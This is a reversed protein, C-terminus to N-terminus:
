FLSLNLHKWTSLFTFFHAYLSMSKDLILPWHKTMLPTKPKLSFTCFFQIIFSMNLFHYSQKNSSNILLILYFWHTDNEKMITITKNEMWIATLYLFFFSNYVCSLCAFYNSGYKHYHHGFFKFFSLDMWVFWHDLHFSVFIFHELMLFSNFFLFFFEEKWGYRCQWWVSSGCVIIIIFLWLVICNHTYTCSMIRHWNHCCYRCYSKKKQQQISADLM